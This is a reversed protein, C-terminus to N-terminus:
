KQTGSNKIIKNLSMEDRDKIVVTIISSLNSAEIGLVM